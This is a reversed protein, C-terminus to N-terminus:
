KYAGGKYNAYNKYRHVHSSHASNEMFYFSDNM